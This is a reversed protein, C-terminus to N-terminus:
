LTRPESPTVVVEYGLEKIVRINLPTLTTQNLLKCFIKAKDCNPYITQSGYNTKLKVHIALKRSLRQTELLEDFADQNSLDPVTRANNLDETTFTTMSGGFLINHM